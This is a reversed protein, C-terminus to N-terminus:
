LAVGTDGGQGQGQGRAGLAGLAGELQRALEEHGEEPTGLAVVIDGLARRTERFEQQWTGWPTVATDRRVAAVLTGLHHTVEELRALVAASAAGTAATAGSSARATAARRARQRLRQATARHERAAASLHRRSTALAQLAVRCSVAVAALALLLHSDQSVGLAARAADLSLVAGCLVMLGVALGHGAWLWRQGRRAREEERQLVAAAEEAVAAVRRLEEEDEDGLEGRAVAPGLEAKRAARLEELAGRARALEEEARALASPVSSPTGLAEALARLAELARHRATSAHALEPRAAPPRPQPEM